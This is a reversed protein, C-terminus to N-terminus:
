PKEVPRGKELWATMDGELHSLRTYGNAQLVEAAIGSRRGTRCYLVVDKDKPVDALRTAIQDYPVNVAGPVHGAAFEEPSRVDLVFLHQPHRAQHELLQEQSMPTVSAAAPKAAPAAAPKTETASAPVGAVLAFAGLLAIGLGSKRRIGQTPVAVNRDHM